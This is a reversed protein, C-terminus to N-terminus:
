EQTLEVTFIEQNMCYEDKYYPIEVKLQGELYSTEYAPFEMLWGALGEPTVEVYEILNVEIHYEIPVCTALDCMNINYEGDLTYETRKPLYNNVWVWEEGELTYINTHDLCAEEYGVINAIVKNEEITYTPEPTCATLLLLFLLPLLRKM